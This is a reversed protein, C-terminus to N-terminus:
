KSISATMGQLIFGMRKLRANYANLNQGLDRKKLQIEWDEEESVSNELWALSSM